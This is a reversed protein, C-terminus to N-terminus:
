FPRGERRLRLKFQKGLKDVIKNYVIEIEEPKLRARLDAEILVSPFAYERHMSSLAFVISAIRDVHESFDKGMRGSLFEVRLPRDYEAPKLYFAHVKESWEKRFDMLIPHEKISKSYTFAFSREGKKLLYDLLVSDYCETISDSFPLNNKQLLEVVIDRFRHGRSDEVCAILECNKKEAIEYLSQFKSLLFHYFTNVSSDERPKDAYQPIISGDLFCYQPSYKEIVNIATDIEEVLRKLSVSLEFENRELSNNSLHPIPFSYFNPFYEAKSLSNKEYSFVAGVARILILDLAYLNKGVFGSDVGAIKGSLKSDAVPFVLQEELLSPNEAFSLKKSFFPRLASSFNRRKSDMAKISEVAESIVSNITM